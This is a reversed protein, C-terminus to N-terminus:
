GKSAMADLAAQYVANRPLAFLRRAMLEFELSRL